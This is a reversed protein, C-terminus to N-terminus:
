LTIRTVAGISGALIPVIRGISGNGERDRENLDPFTLHVCGKTTM